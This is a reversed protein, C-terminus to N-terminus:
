TLCVKLLSFGRVHMCVQICKCPKHVGVYTYKMYTCIFIIYMYM